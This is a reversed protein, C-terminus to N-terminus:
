GLPGIVQLTPEHLCKEYRYGEDSEGADDDECEDNL